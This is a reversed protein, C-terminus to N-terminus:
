VHVWTKRPGVGCFGCADREQLAQPTLASCTCAGVCVLSVFKDLSAPILKGDNPNSLVITGTWCVVVCPHLRTRLTYVRHVKDNLVCRGVHQGLNRVTMMAGWDTCEVAGAASAM